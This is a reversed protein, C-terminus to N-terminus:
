LVVPRGDARERLEDGCQRMLTVVDDSRVDDPILDAVAALPVAAASRTAQVWGVFAGEREAAAQAERAVRSKGVGAEAVVVVGHCGPDARAAAIVELEPDRGILPWAGALTSLNGPDAPM